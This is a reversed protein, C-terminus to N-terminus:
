IGGINAGGERSQKTTIQMSQNITDAYHLLIILVIKEM